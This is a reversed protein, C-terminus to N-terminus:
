FQTIKHNMYLSEKERNFVNIVIGVFMNLVFLSCAIMYIMFFLIQIPDSNKVQVKDIETADVANWMVGIWGETTM